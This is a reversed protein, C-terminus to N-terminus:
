ISSIMSADDSGANRVIMCYTKDDDSITVLYEAETSKFASLSEMASQALARLEGATKGHVIIKINMKSLKKKEFKADAVIYTNDALVKYVDDYYTEWQENVNADINAFKTGPVRVWTEDIKDYTSANGQFYGSYFYNGLDDDEENNLRYAAVFIPVNSKVDSFRDRMYNVLKSSSVEVYDQLKEDTIQVEKSGVTDNLVLAFSIGKLNKGKYWDVEYIDVLITPGKVEGNGTDFSEDTSPNLGNPNDDRLTGLLGRSGDTADLEDYDLYAHTKYSVDNVSFHAKSLDMLGDEIQIRQDASSIIGVHKARTNSSEYPLIATYKDSSASGSAGGTRSCACLALVLTCTLLKRIRM